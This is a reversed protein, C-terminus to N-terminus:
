EVHFLILLTQRIKTLEDINQEWDTETLLNMVQESHEEDNVNSFLEDNFMICTDYLNQAAQRRVWPYNHLFFNTLCKLILNRLTQNNFQLLSCYLKIFHTYLAPNNNLTQNKKILIDELLEIFNIWYQLFEKPYHEYFYEFTSQSLLREWAQISPILIRIQHNQKNTLLKEVDQFLLHILHHNTKQLILFSHLAQSAHSLEGATILCNMWITYRYRDFILLQVLLPFVSQSNRWDIDNSQLFIRELEIKSDIPQEFSINLFEILATGSIMRLDDIKSCVNTLIANLCNHLMTSTLFQKNHENILKLLRVLQTCATERVLRGSDGYRDNTYDRTCRLYSTILKNISEQTSFPSLSHLHLNEYLNCLAILTDKRQKILHQTSKTIIILNFLCDLIKTISNSTLIMKSPFSALALAYGQRIYEQSTTTIKNLYRDLIESSSSKSYFANSFAKLANLAAQRVDDDLNSICEDLITQWCQITENPFCKEKENLSFYEMSRSINEIFLCLSPRILDGSYGDLFGLNKYDILLSSIKKQLTVQFDELNSCENPNRQYRQYLGYIIHGCSALLGHRAIGDSKRDLCRDFLPLLIKEYIEEITGYDITTKELLQSTLLRTEKKWHIIKYKLLHEIMYRGFIDYYKILSHALILFCYDFKGILNYDTQQIIDIGHPFYEGQRGVNEQLSASAARRCQVNWDFCIICLLMGALDATYSRFDIPDFARAFSWCVYCAADRVIHGYTQHGLKEDYNLSKHVIPMVSDLREPLLLGRRALEALALCGGQLAYHDCALLAVTSIRDCLLSVLQAAYSKRLRNTIRGLGKASSWRVYLEKDSLGTMLLQLISEVLTPVNSNDELDEQEDNEYQEHHHGNTTSSSKINMTTTSTSPNNKKSTLSDLINRVGRRYRWAAGHKPMPLLTMALKQLLKYAMRRIVIRKAYLIRKNVLLDYLGDVYLILNLRQGFKFIYSVTQLSATMRLIIQEDNEKEDYSELIPFIESTLFDNLCLLRISDQRSMFHGLNFAVMRMYISNYLFRKYITLIQSMTTQTRTKSDFRCLDLPVMCTTGLWVLLSYLTAWANESSSNETLHREILNLVLILHHPEHPLFRTTMVKFGRLKIIHHLLAGAIHNKNPGHEIYHLLKNIIDPLYSDLLQPQEQYQNLIYQFQDYIREVDTTDIPTDTTIVSQEENTISGIQDILQKVQEHQEFENLSFYVPDHDYIDVSDATM